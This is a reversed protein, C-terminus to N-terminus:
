KFIRKLLPKKGGGYKICAVEGEFSLKGSDADFKLIKLEKGTISLEGRSTVLNIADPYASVVKSVGEVNGDKRSVITISHRVQSQNDM